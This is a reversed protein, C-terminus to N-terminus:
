LLDACCIFYMNLTLSLFLLDIQQIQKFNVFFNNIPM